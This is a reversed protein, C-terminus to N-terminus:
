RIGEISSILRDREEVSLVAFFPSSQRLRTARSSTSVLLQWFKRLWTRRWAGPEEGACGHDAMSVGTGRKGLGHVAGGSTDRNM